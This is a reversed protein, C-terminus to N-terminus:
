LLVAVGFAAVVGVLGRLSGAGSDYAPTKAKAETEKREAPDGTRLRAEPQPKKKDNDPELGGDGAGTEVVEALLTEAVRAEFSAGPDEQEALAMTTKVKEQAPVSTAEFEVEASVKPKTVAAM